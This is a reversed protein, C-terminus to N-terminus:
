SYIRSVVSDYRDSTHEDIYSDDSSSYLQRSKSVKLLSNLSIKLIGRLLISKTSSCPSAKDESLSFLCRGANSKALLTSDKSARSIGVRNVRIREM